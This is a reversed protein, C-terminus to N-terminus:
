VASWIGDAGILVDGEVTAGSDMMVRLGRGNQNREYGVVGDGNVVVGKPLKDLYINQLDPREIVGTHPM